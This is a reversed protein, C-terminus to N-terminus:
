VSVEIHSDEFGTAPFIMIVPWARSTRFDSGNMTLIAIRDGPVINAGASILIFYTQAADEGNIGKIIRPKKEIRCDFDEPKDKSANWEDRQPRLRRIRANYYVEILECTRALTKEQVTGRREDM